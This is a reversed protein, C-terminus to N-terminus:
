REILFNNVELWIYKRYSFTLIEHCEICQYLIEFITKYSKNIKLHLIITTSIPIM